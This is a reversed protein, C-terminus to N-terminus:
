RGEQPVFGVDDLDRDSIKKAPGTPGDILLAGDEYTLCLGGPLVATVSEAGQECLDRLAFAWGLVITEAQPREAEASRITQPYEQKDRMGERHCPSKGCDGIFVSSKGGVTM